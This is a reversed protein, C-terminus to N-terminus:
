YGQLAYVSEKLFRRTAEDDSAYTSLTSVLKASDTAPGRLATACQSLARALQKVGLPTKEDQLREVLVSVVSGADVAGYTALKAALSPAALVCAPDRLLSMVVEPRKELVCRFVETDVGELMKTMAVAAEARLRDEPSEALAVLEECDEVACPEVDLLSVLHSGSPTVPPTIEPFGLHPPPALTGHFPLAGTWGAPVEMANLGSAQIYESCSRITSLFDVGDGSLRTWVAAVSTPSVEPAIFRVHIQLLSYGVCLSAEVDGSCASPVQVISDISELFRLLAGVFPTAADGVISRQGSPLKEVPLEVADASNPFIVRASTEPNRKKAEDNMDMSALCLGREVPAEEAYIDGDFHDTRVPAVRFQQGDEAVQWSMSM